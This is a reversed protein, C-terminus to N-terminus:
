RVSDVLKKLVEEAHGAVKVKAWIERVLGEPDVLATTREVGMYERGYMKKKKWVGCAALFVHETDSLLPFPLNLKASFGAHKKTDDPSVGM